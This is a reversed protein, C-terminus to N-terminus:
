IHFLLGIQPGYLTLDLKHLEDGSGSEFDLGFARFGLTLEFLHSFQYGGYPYVTWTFKSGTGFGGFDGRLGAKWNENNIPITFRYVILPDFFSDDAKEDIAPLVQGAEVNLESSIMNYRGGLGIEFWATARWMGYFGISTLKADLSGARSTVPTTFDDGLSVYILDTSLSWDSNAAEFYLMGAMKLSGLMDSPKSDFEDGKGNVVVDGSTYPAWIYPAIVFNWGEDKANEEQAYTIFSAMFLLTLILMPIIKMTNMTNMTKMTKMTKM